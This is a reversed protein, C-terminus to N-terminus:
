GGKRATVFFYPVHVLRVAEATRKFCRQAACTRRREDDDLQLGALVEDRDQGVPGLQPLLDVQVQWGAAGLTTALLRGALPEAGARRLAAIAIPALAVEPPHEIAAGFDPEIALLQGGPALVRAVERVAAVLDHVWMFLHQAFVLEFVGAAFPLAQADGVVAPVPTSGLAARRRDLAIVPGTARRRLEGTVIDPGAGLDLVRRCNAVGLRRLLRSRIGALRESQRVLLDRQPLDPAENV